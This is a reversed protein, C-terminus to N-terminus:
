EQCEKVANVIDQETLHYQEKLYEVSGVEGFRDKVAIKKLTVPLGKEAIESAVIDGIGGYQNHNEVTIIYKHSEIIKQILAKDYPKIFLLDVVTVDVGTEELLKAANLATQTMSGIAILAVRKGEKLMQGCGYKFTSTEDYIYPVAKRPTRTYWPGLRKYYERLVWDYTVPDSPAVVTMNPIARIMSIDEFTTHTGGNYQAWFGPDSGCLHMSGKAYALSMYIQDIVRRTIFPAFTHAFPILGTFSLGAGASIMNQESIGVDICRDKYKDFLNGAGSSSALDADLLMIKSDTEMLEALTEAYVQRMEKSKSEQILKWSM